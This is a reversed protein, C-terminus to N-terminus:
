AVTLVTYSNAPLHVPQGAAIPLEKPSIRAPDGPPNADDLSTASLTTAEVVATGVAAAGFHKANIVLDVANAGTAVRVFTRKGDDTTQASVSLAAPPPSVGASSEGSKVMVAVAKWAPTQAIMQHVFGPPQLWTMNPLFFSIGQDFADYHGSRETCFSATRFHLRSCWDDACNFWANLDNAEMLARSMTHIAANTEANVCGMTYNPFKAFVSHALQVAGGGGVHADMAAHDRIGVREVKAADTPNLWKANNPNMYFLTKPKGLKAARAEM